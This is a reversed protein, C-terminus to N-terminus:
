FIGKGSSQKARGRDDTLMSKKTESREDGKNVKPITRINNSSEGEGWWCCPRHRVGESGGAPSESLGRTGRFRLLLAILLGSCCLTLALSLLVLHHPRVTLLM